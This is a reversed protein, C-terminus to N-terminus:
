EIKGKTNVDSPEVLMIVSPITARSRHKIGKKVMFGEGEKLNITGEETDIFIEGKLVLFFEDGEEHVHFPYEGQIKAVRISINGIKIIEEPSWFDIKEIIKNISIKM